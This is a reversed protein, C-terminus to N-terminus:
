ASELDLARAKAKSPKVKVHEPQMDLDLFATRSGKLKALAEKDVQRAATEGAKVLKKAAERAVDIAEQLKENSGPAVIGSLDKARKAADRIAAVDMQKVGREMRDLLDRVEGNIAKTAEVDDSAVRGVIVNVNVRTVNAKENFKNAMDQAKKVAAALKDANDEPCLLGFSSKACVNIIFGRCKMRVQGAAKFEKADAITRTTEWEVIEAGSKDTKAGLDRKHYSVNGTVGTKLAVLLGPRITSTKIAM